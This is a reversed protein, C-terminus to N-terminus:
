LPVPRKKAPELSKLPSLATISAGTQNLSTERFPPSPRGKRPIPFDFTFFRLLTSCFRTEANGRFHYRQQPHGPYSSHSHFLIAHPYFTPPAIFFSPTLSRTTTTQGPEDTDSATQLASRFPSRSKAVDKRQSPQAVQQRELILRLFSNSPRLPSESASARHQDENCHVVLPDAAEGRNRDQGREGGVAGAVRLEYTRM